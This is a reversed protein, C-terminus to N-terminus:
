ILSAIPVRTRRCMRYDESLKSAVHPSALAIENGESLIMYRDRGIREGNIQKYVTLSTVFFFRVCFAFVSM